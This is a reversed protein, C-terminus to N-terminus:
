RIIQIKKLIEKSDDIFRIFYSGSTFASLNLTLIQEGSNLLSYTEILQGSENLIQLKSMSGSSNIKCLVIDQAPNPYISLIQTTENLIDVSTMDLTMFSRPDSFEGYGITNKGRVHWFYKTDYQLSNKPVTFSNKTIYEQNVVLNLQGFKDNESIQVHYSTAGTIADWKLDPTISVSTQLDTPEELIPKQPAMAKTTFSRIGSWSGTGYNNKGAVRWYILTSEPLLTATFNTTSIDGQEDIMNTFTNDRAFQITYSDANSAPNWTFNQNVDINKTADAPVLLTPTAPMQGSQDTIKFWYTYDKKTGNLDVNKISVTYKVEKQVSPIKWKLINPIGAGDNDSFVGSTPVIQNQEDKIEITATSYSVKQNNWYNSKDFVATFSFYWSKNEKTFVMNTPYNQYPYAVFDNQWDSINQKEDDIVYISMGTVSFQPNQVSAGDVRGIAIFKLFPDILWRRHGCVDVNEDIIWSSISSETTPWTSGYFWGIHLNSNGSGTSGDATYCKWTTPPTHSLQENAASLLASKQVFIDKTYNYTVPKLGHIARVQNVLNLVKQKEAEKLTGEKCNTIDPMIDYFQAQAMINFSLCILGLLIISIKLKM